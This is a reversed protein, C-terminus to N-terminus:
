MIDGSFGRFKEHLGVGVRFSPGKCNPALVASAFHLVVLHPPRPELVQEAIESASERFLLVVSITGCWGLAQWM